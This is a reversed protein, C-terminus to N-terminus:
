AVVYLFSRYRSTMAWYSAGYQTQQLWAQLGGAAPLADFSVSVGGESASAIRGPAVPGATTGAGNVTAIHAVLLNLLISRQGLDTVVSADTNDLYMCAEDFYRALMLFGVSSLEPFRAQFDRAIFTVSPM